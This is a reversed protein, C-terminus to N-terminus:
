RAVGETLGILDTLVAIATRTSGTQLLALALRADHGAQVLRVTLVGASLEPKPQTWLPVVPTAPQQEAAQIEAIYAAHTDDSWDEYPGHEDLYRVAILRTAAVQDFTPASM